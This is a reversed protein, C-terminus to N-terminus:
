WCRAFKLEGCGRFFRRPYVRYEGVQISQAIRRSRDIMRRSATSFMWSRAKRAITFKHTKRNRPAFLVSQRRICVSFWDEESFVGDVVVSDAERMKSRKNLAHSSRAEDERLRTVRAFCQFFLAHSALPILWRHQSLNCPQKPQTRTEPVTLQGM